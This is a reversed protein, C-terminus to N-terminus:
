TQEVPGFDYTFAASKFITRGEEPSAGKIITHRGTPPVRLPATLRFVGAPFQYVSRGTAAQADILAQLAATDDHMGDGWIKMPAFPEKLALGPPIISSTAALAALGRLFGRRSVDNM